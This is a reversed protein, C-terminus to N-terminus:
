NKAHRFHRQLINALVALGVGSSLSQHVRPHPSQNPLVSSATLCGMKWQTQCVYKILIENRNTSCRM